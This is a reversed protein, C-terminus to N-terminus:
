REYKWNRRKGQAIWAAATAVRQARTEPRKAEVIWLVYERQQSPSFAAFHGRAKGDKSLAAALDPPTKPAPKPTGAPPRKAPGKANLAVARKVYDVMVAHPPLQSVNTMKEAMFSVAPNGRLIGKPDGLEKARWFGFTAHAQFAAMGGVIGNSVFSVHGWKIREEIEPAAAHFAKRIRTLIPRAFPAAGAIYADVRRRDDTM